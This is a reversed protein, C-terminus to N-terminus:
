QKRPLNCGIVASATFLWGLITLTGGIPAAYPFLRTGTYAHVTLDAGFLLGGALLISAAFYFWSSRRAAHAGFASIGIAAAADLMLFHSSTTLLPEPHQHAASAAEIVGAAGMLAAIFVLGSAWRSM